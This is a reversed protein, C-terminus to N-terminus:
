ILWRCLVAQRRTTAPFSFLTADKALLTPTYDDGVLFGVTVCAARCSDGRLDCNRREPPATPRQQEVSCRCTQLQKPTSCCAQMSESPQSCCVGCCLKSDCRRGNSECASTAPVIGALAMAAILAISSITKTVPRFMVFVGNQAFM